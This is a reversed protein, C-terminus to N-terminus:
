KLSQADISPDSLSNYTDGAVTAVQVCESINRNKLAQPDRAQMSTVFCPHEGASSRQMWADFLSGGPSCAARSIPVGEENVPVIIATSRKVGLKVGDREREKVEDILRQLEKGIPKLDGGEDFIGLDHEFPPFDSLSSAVDHSCWWTIGYLDECELAHEVAERCFQPAQEREIVNEPAGIEQLWVPRAPDSAFAKSLEILYEAHRTSQESVAGYRQATGNFVWSHISTIDGYNTAHQPLFAHGDVYWVKDDESHLLVRGEEHARQELPDILESIWRTVDDSTAAMRRPHSTDTFQNCENGLTLGRFRPEDALADYLTRVLLAEASRAQPDAFMSTEHWSVLWPPVHDFSSMHGQLVDVYSELGAAAALDVMHRLDAVAKM